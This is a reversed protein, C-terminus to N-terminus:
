QRPPPSQWPCNEIIEDFAFENSSLYKLTNSFLRKAQSKEDVMALLIGISGFSVVRGGDEGNPLYETLIGIETAPKDKTKKALATAIVRIKAKTPLYQDGGVKGESNISIGDLEIGSHIVGYEALFSEDTPLDSLIQHDCLREVKSEPSNEDLKADFRSLPFGATRYSIGVLNSPSHQPPTKRTRYSVPVLGTNQWISKPELTKKRGKFMGLTGDPHANVFWWAINGSFNLINGGLDRFDEIQQYIAKTWYENHGLFILPKNGFDGGLECNRIHLDNMGCIQLDYGNELLSNTIEAFALPGHYTGSKSANPRHISVNLYRETETHNGRILERNLVKYLSGGGISSYAAQTWDPLILTAAPAVIKGQVFFVIPDSRHTEQEGETEQFNFVIQYAGTPVDDSIKITLHQAFDCGKGFYAGCPEFAVFTSRSRALVLSPNANTKGIEMGSLNLEGHHSASFPIQLESGAKIVWNGSYGRISKPAKWHQLCTESQNALSRIEPSAFLATECNAIRDPLGNQRESKFKKVIDATFPLKKPQNGAYKEPDKITKLNVMQFHDNSSSVYFQSLADHLEVKPERIFVCVITFVLIAFALLIITGIFKKKQFIFKDM